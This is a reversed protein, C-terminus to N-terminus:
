PFAAGPSCPMSKVEKRSMLSREMQTTTLPSPGVSVHSNSDYTITIFNGNTDTIQDPYYLAMSPDPQTYHVKRGNKYVLTHYTHTADVDDYHIYTSDQSDYGHGNGVLRHKSGDAETLVYSGFFSDDYLGEIYGFDLRFGYGAADRDTNFSAGWM